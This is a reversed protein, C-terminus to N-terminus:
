CPSNAMSLCFILKTCKLSKVTWSLVFEDSRFSPPNKDGFRKILVKTVDSSCSTETERKERKKMTTCNEGSVKSGFLESVKEWGANLYDSFLFRYFYVDIIDCNLTYWPNLDSSPLLQILYDNGPWKQSSQFNIANKSATLSPGFFSELWFDFVRIQYFKNLDKKFVGLLCVFILEYKDTKAVWSRWKM